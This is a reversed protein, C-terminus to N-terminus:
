LKLTIKRNKHKLACSQKASPRNRPQKVPAIQRSCEVPLNFLGAHSHGSEALQMQTQEPVFISWASEARRQVIGHRADPQGNQADSVSASPSLNIGSCERRSFLALKQVSFHLARKKKNQNIGNLIYTPKQNINCIIMFHLKIGLLSLTQFPWSLALGHLLVDRHSNCCFM